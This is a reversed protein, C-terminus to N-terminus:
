LMELAHRLKQTSQAFYEDLALGIDLLLVVKLVSLLQDIHQQTEETSNEAFRRFCYQAYQNYAGLFWQPDIGVDAHARSVNRRQKLYQDGWDAELM